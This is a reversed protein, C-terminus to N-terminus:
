RAIFKKGNRIYIHGPMLKEKAVPIGQLNYITEDKYEYPLSSVSADINFYDDMSNFREAYWDVIQDIEARLDGVYKPRSGKTDWYEVQEQWAGSNEFLDCYGYMLGAVNEVSFSNERTEIWRQRMKEKVDSNSFCISFPSTASNAIEKMTWHSYNGDYYNGNYHGGLSTDLDWPTVIFKADNAKQCNVMSFYKNKNGWNDSICLAMILLSYDVLNDEYFNDIVYQSNNFHDYYDILPQWAPIGPYDEPEKLEWADHWRPIYVTYDNFFGPTEQNGIDNTGQKYLVGRITVEGDDAVQPKKLGLLKRNIKDTLCYIGKYIDNIYVIVFKGVTGNRSDFDTEYPLRSYSNWIDFCVRNRMCIRDIAMADLIFSSAKRIGLLNDDIEEGEPTELKMNLSPKMTYQRATAGRTKFKAPHETVVGDTDELIMSGPTYDEYILEGTYYVKLVPMREEGLCFFTFLSVFSVLFIITAKM